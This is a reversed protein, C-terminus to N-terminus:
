ENHLHNDLLNSLKKYQDIIKEVEINNVDSLDYLSHAKCCLTLQMKKDLRALLVISRTNLANAAHMLGGDCCIVWKSRRIVEASQKFTLQDVYSTINNQAFSNLIKKEYSKGNESGVLIININKNLLLIEEIVNVWYEYTRYAWEGGVVIAIFERPLSLNSVTSKDHDSIFLECKAISNVESEGMSSGLLFNMRHFSFMVRNVEPGNFYGYLGVFAILPAIKAKISISRTSYSDIIVLDYQLPNFKNKNTYINRFVKDSRYLDANKKHTFLDVNREKLLIRSSLDMLSDGLSPASINIWLINKHTPMIEDLEHINQRKLILFLLRKTYKVFSYTISRQKLYVSIYNPIDHKFSFTNTKKFGLMKIGDRLKM